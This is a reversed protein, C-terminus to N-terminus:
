NKQSKVEKTCSVTECLLIRNRFEWLYVRNISKIVGIFQYEKAASPSDNGLLGEASYKM